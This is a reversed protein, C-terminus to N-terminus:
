SSNSTNAHNESPSSHEGAINPIEGFSEDIQTVFDESMLASDIASCTDKVLDLIKQAFDLDDKEEQTMDNNKIQVLM